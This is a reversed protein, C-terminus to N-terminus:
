FIKGVRKVGSLYTTQIQSKTKLQKKVVELTDEDKQAEIRAIILNRARKHCEHDLEILKNM